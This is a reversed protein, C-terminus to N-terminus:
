SVAQPELEGVPKELKFKKVSFRSMTNKLVSKASLKYLYEGVPMKTADWITVAYAGGEKKEELKVVLVGTSDFIELTVNCDEKLFYYFRVPGPLPPNPLMGMDEVFTTDILGEDVTVNIDKIRLVPFQDSHLRIEYKGEHLTPFNFKGEVDTMCSATIKEGQAVEVKTGVLPTKGDKRLFYGFIKGLRDIVIQRTSYLQGPKGKKSVAAVHFYWTGQEVDKLNVMRETTFSDKETLTEKENSSLKYFYGKPDFSGDHRDEWTFVPSQNNVAEGERPHTSSAIVPPPMEGLSILVSSHTPKSLNGAKDRSVVHFYWIGSEDAKVELPMEIAKMAFDPMPITDPKQDFLFYYCDLGSLKPSFTLQYQVKQESYWREKDSHSTSVVHPAEPKQVDIKLRYHATQDSTNGARDKAILHFYWVGSEQKPLELRTKNIFTGKESTLKTSPSLDISYYYGVVGTADAPANWTMVALPNSSWDDSSHTPSSLSPTGVGSDSLSAATTNGEFQENGMKDVPHVSYYYVTNEQLRGGKDIYTVEKVEGDVSIMRPKEGELWRYVRYFNLGSVRDEAPSWKLEIDGALIPTAKLNTVPTPPSIDITVGVMEIDTYAEVNGAADTARCRFGYHVGDQGQYAATKNTVGVLWDGWLGDVGTRVQVDFSVVEGSADTADWNINLQTKDMLAPLRVMTSKPATTDVWIPYHTAEKSVNGAKDKAAIHFYWKGDKLAPATMFTRNVWEGNTPGPITHPHSDIVVYYGEIGAMDQPVEWTLKPAASKVWRHVPHTLSKVVPALANSDTMIKFNALAGINQAKDKACIHAYWVGDDPLNFVATKATTWNMEKLVPMWNEEHNIISYYGEIGSLDVPEKWNIEVHRNCYWFTSDPHSTSTLEPAEVHTDLRVKFITPEESVNGAKDLCLVSFYHVGDRPIELTVESKETYSSGIAQPVVRPDDSFTYYYGAVGSMDEPSTLKFVAKIKSYWENEDPHTTSYITPKSVKTDVRMAYHGAQRSFNGAKDKTSVHFYWIGDETLEFTLTKQTTLLSSEDPVTDVKRDISYYFGDVGSFDEPSEWNLIVYRDRYWNKQDPHTNSTVVPAKAETDICVKFHTAQPSLNEARDKTRVHFYWIGDNLRDFNIKNKKTWRADEPTPLSNADQNLLYYYGDVGSLDQAPVLTVEFKHNSYWRESEPHTESSVAPAQAKTDIRIPYHAAQVGVNGVADLTSIHVYWIDDELPGLTIRNEKTLDGKSPGPVTDPVKDAKVYYGVVGSLDEPAEWAIVPTPNPVWKDSDPHTSSYVKAPPLAEIDINVRYHAAEVGINGAEDVGSVHVYWQGQPVGQLVIRNSDTYTAEPPMPVTESKQDLCYYYGRLHAVPNLVIEINDLKEWKDQQPHTPSTMSPPVVAPTKLSLTQTVALSSSRHASLVKLEYETDAKLGTLFVKHKLTQSKDQFMQNMEIEDAKEGYHVESTAAIDTVWSLVVSQSTVRDIKLESIIPNRAMDYTSRLLAAQNESGAYLYDNFVAFARVGEMDGAYATSWEVGDRTKLVRGSNGTGAFLTNEFVEMCYCNLERGSEYVGLWDRGNTTRYIKVGKPGSTGAYLAGDFEKLCQIFSQGTSAVEEWNLGDDTCFILGSPYTGVYLKNKFVGMATVATESLNGVANWHLGDYSYIKGQSSTGAYLRNKFECLVHIRDEGTAFSEKWIEGDTTYYISGNLNTGAFLVKEKGPTGYATLCYVQTSYDGADSNNAEPTFFKTDTKTVLQAKWSGAAGSNSVFVRDKGTAAFLRGKFEALSYFIPVADFNELTEFYAPSATSFYLDIANKLNELAQKVNHGQAQCGPLAAVRAVVNGTARTELDIQFDYPFTKKQSNNNKM